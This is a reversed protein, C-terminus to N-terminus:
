IEFIELFNLIKMFNYDGDITKFVISRDITETNFIHFLLM